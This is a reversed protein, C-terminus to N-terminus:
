RTRHPLIQMEQALVFGDLGCASSIEFAQINLDTLTQMLEEVTNYSSLPWGYNKRHEFLDQHNKYIHQFSTQEIDFLVTRLDDGEFHYALVGTFLVDTFEHPERDYYATHLTIRKEGADVTYSLLFNDHISIEATM